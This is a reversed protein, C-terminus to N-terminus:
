DDNSEMMQYLIEDFNEAIDDRSAVLGLMEASRAMKLIPNNPDVDQLDGDIFELKEHTSKRTERRSKQIIRLFKKHRQSIKPLEQTSTAKKESMNVGKMCWYDYVLVPPYTM